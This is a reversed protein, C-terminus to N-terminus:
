IFIRKLQIIVKTLKVTIKKTGCMKKKINNSLKILSCNQGRINQIEYKAPRQCQVLHVQQRINDLKATYCYTNQQFHYEKM